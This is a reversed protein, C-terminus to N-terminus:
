IIKIEDNLITEKIYPSLGNYTVLDVKKKLIKSLKDQLGAFEFGLPKSLEVLIDVDSNKNQEGRAYSGFIGAKIIGYKKLIKIIKSKIKSITREKKRNTKIKFLTNDAQKEKKSLSISDLDTGLYVKKKTIKDKKRISLCRYYNKRGNRQQIETYTM